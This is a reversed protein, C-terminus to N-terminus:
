RREPIEIEYRRASQALEDRIDNSVQGNLAEWVALPFDVIYGMRYELVAGRHGTDASSLFPPRVGDQWESRLIYDMVIALHTINPCKWILVKDVMWAYTTPKYKEIDKPLRPRGMSRQDAESYIADIWHKKGSLSIAFCDRRRLKLTIM